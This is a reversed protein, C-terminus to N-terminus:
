WSSFSNYQEGLITRTIFDLLILNAPCIARIPSSVPHIPDQRPLRLSIFWQPSRPTSSHIINLRIQLLHSQSYISQIPSSWFLSLHRISTLTTIFMRTGQFAHFEKVLQLGALKELLFEAGDLSYTVLLKTHAHHFM